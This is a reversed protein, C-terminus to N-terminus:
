SYRVILDNKQAYIILRMLKDLASSLREEDMADYQVIGRRMAPTAHKKIKKTNLAILIARRVAPMDEDEIKGVLELREEGTIGLIDLIRGALINNIEFSHTEDDHYNHYRTGSSLNKIGGYRSARFQVTM